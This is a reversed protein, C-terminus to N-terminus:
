PEERHPYSTDNITAAESAAEIEMEVLQLETGSVVETDWTACAPCQTVFNTVLFEQACHRCWARHPVVDIWLQAGALLPDLSALMAFSFTLSDAVIGSAEGIRLRVGKVRAAHCEAARTAVADVISEALALEHM